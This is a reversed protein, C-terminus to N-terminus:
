LVFLTPASLATGHEIGETINKLYFGDQRM